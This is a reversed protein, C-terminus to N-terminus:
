TMSFLQEFLPVPEIPAALEIQQPAARTREPIREPQLRLSQLVFHNLVQTIARSHQQFIRAEGQNGDESQREADARVCCYEADNVRHQEFRQRIVFRIPHHDQPCIIRREFQIKFQTWERNVQLFPSLLCPREFLNRGDLRASGIKRFLTIRFFRSGYPDRGIEEGCEPYLWQEPSIERQVFLLWALVFYHDDTM